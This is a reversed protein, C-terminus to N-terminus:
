SALTAVNVDGPQLLAPWKEQTQQPSVWQVIAADAAAPNASFDAQLLPAGYGKLLFPYSGPEAPGRGGSGLAREGHVLHNGQSSGDTEDHCAVAALAPAAAAAAGGASLGLVTRMQADTEGAAGTDLMTMVASVSYPSVIVNQGGLASAAHGYLTVALATQRRCWRARKQRPSGQPLQCVPSIVPKETACSPAALWLLAMGVCPLLTRQM